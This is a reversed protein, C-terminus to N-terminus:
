ISSPVDTDVSLNESMEEDPPNDEVYFDLEPKMSELAQMFKEKLGQQMRTPEVYVATLENLNTISKLFLVLAARNLDSNRLDVLYLENMNAIALSLHQMQSGNITRYNLELANLNFPQNVVDEISVHETGPIAQQHKDCLELASNDIISKIVDCFLRVTVYPNTQIIRQYLVSNRVVDYKCRNEKIMPVLTGPLSPHEWNRLMFDRIGHVQNDQNVTCTAAFSQNLFMLLAVCCIAIGIFKKSISHVIHM